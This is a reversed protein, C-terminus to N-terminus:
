RLYTELDSGEVYENIICVKDQTDYFWDIFKVIMPHNMSRHFSFTRQLALEEHPELMSADSYFTKLAYM